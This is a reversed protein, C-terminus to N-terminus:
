IGFVILTGVIRCYRALRRESPWSPPGGVLRRVAAIVIPDFSDNVAGTDMRGFSLPISGKLLNERLYQFAFCMPAQVITSLKLKAAQM